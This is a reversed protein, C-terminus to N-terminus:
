LHNAGPTLFCLGTVFPCLVMYRMSGRIIEPKNEFDSEGSYLEEELGFKVPVAGKLLADIKGITKPTDEFDSKGTYVDEESEGAAM